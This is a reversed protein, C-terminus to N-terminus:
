AGITGLVLDIPLRLSFCIEVVCWSCLGVACGPLTVDIRVQFGRRHRESLRSIIDKKQLPLGLQCQVQCRSASAKKQRSVESVSQPYWWRIRQQNQTPM